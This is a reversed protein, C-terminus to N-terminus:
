SNRRPDLMLQAQMGSSRVAVEIVSAAVVTLVVIAVGLALHPHTTSRCYTNAVGAPLFSGCSDYGHRPWAAYLTGGLVGVIVFLRNVVAATRVAQLVSEPPSLPSTVRLRSLHSESEPSLAAVQYGCTPCTNGSARKASTAGCAPNTCVYRAPREYRAGIGQSM